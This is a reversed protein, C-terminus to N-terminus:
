QCTCGKRESTYKNRKIEFRKTAYTNAGSGGTCADSCDINSSALMMFINDQKEFSM